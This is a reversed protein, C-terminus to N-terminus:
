RGDAGDTGAGACEPAGGILHAVCEVDPVRGVKGAEGVNDKSDAGVVDKGLIIVAAGGDEVTGGGGAGVEVLM